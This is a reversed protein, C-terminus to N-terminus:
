PFSIIIRQIDRVKGDPTIAISITGGRGGYELAEIGQRPFKLHRAPRGLLARVEDATTVGPKIKALAENDTVYGHGHGSAYVAGAAFLM